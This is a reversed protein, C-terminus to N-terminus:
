PQTELVAPQAQNLTYEVRNSLGSKAVLPAIREYVSNGGPSIVFKLKPVWFFGVGPQGWGQAQQDITTLLRDFIEVRDAGEPIPIPSSSEVLFHDSDIRIVVPKEVGISAGPEHPGWKRRQLQEYPLAAEQQRVRRVQAPGFAPFPAPEADADPLEGSTGGTAQSSATTRAATSAPRNMGSRSSEATGQANPGAPDEGPPPAGASLSETSERVNAGEDLRRPPQGANPSTGTSARPASTRVEGSRPDPTGTTTEGSGTGPTGQRRQRHEQGGFREINQWSREGVQAGGELEALDFRRGSSGNATGAGAPKGGSQGSGGGPPGASDGLGGGASEDTFRGGSSGSSGSGGFGGRGAQQMQVRQEQSRRIAETLLERAQPDVPPLALEVDDTVLEYGFPQKLSSLLKMAIYYAFTGDPRVVLLVYPPDRQAAPAQSWYAMLAMTGALLPNARPTAGEIDAPTLVVDEPLFRIGTATCEILIPKRTTGSKGEFAVISFRSASEQQQSQLEKLRARLKAIEAELKAREAASAPVRDEDASVQGMLRSLELEQQLLQQQLEDIQRQAALALLRERNLRQQRADVTSALEAVRAAWTAQLAAREAELAARDLKPTVPAEATTVLTAAAVVPEPEVWVVPPSEDGFEPALPEDIVIHAAAVAKAVAAARLKKASVLLLFILSGMVCVLVALFPFLQVSLTERARRAM